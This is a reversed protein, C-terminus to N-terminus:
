PTEEEAPEPAPGAALAATAVGIVCDDAHKGRSGGSCHPLDSCGFYVLEDEFAIRQLASTARALQGRLQENEVCEEGYAKLWDCEHDTRQLAAIRAQQQDITALLQGFTTHSISRNTEKGRENFHPWEGYWESIRVLEEASLAPAPDATM